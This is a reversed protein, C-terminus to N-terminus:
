IRGSCDSALGVAQLGEGYAETGTDPLHICHGTPRCAVEEAAPEGCVQQERVLLSRALSQGKCCRLHWVLGAFEKVRILLISTPKPVELLGFGHEVSSPQRCWARWRGSGLADRDALAHASPLRKCRGGLLKATHSRRVRLPM